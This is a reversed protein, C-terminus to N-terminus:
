ASVMTAPDVEMEEAGLLRQLLIGSENVLIVIGEPSIAAFITSQDADWHIKSTELHGNDSAFVAITQGPYSCVYHTSDSGPDKLAWM